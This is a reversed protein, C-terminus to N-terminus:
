TPISAAFISCINGRENAGGGAGTASARWIKIVDICRTTASRMTKVCLSQMSRELQQFPPAPPFPRYVLIESPCKSKGFIDKEREVLDEIVEERLNVASFVVAFSARFSEGVQGPENEIAKVFATLCFSEFVQM